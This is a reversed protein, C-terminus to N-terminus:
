SPATSATRIALEIMERPVERDSFHRTTRRRSMRNFFSRAREIMENEPIVEFDLLIFGDDEESNGM